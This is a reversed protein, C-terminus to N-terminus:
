KDHCECLWCNDGFPPFLWLRGNGENGYGKSRNPLGQLSCLGLETRYDKIEDAALPRGLARLHRLEFTLTLRKIFLYVM